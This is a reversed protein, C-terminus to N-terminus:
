FELLKSRFVMSNNENHSVGDRESVLRSDCASRQSLVGVPAWDVLISTEM